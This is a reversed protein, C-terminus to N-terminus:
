HAGAKRVSELLSSAQYARVLYFIQYLGNISIAVGLCALIVWPNTALANLNPSNLAGIIAAAAPASFIVVLLPGLLSLVICTIIAVRGQRWIAFGLVAQGVGVLCFILGPTRFFDGNTGLTTAAAFFMIGFVFLAATGVFNNLAARRIDRKADPVKDIDDLKGYPEDSAIGEPAYEMGEPLAPRSPHAFLNPQQNTNPIMFPNL